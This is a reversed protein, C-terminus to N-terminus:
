DKKPMPRISNMPQGTTYELGCSGRDIALSNLGWHLQEAADSPLGVRQRPQPLTHGTASEPASMALSLSDLASAFDAEEESVELASAINSPRTKLKMGSQYIKRDYNWRAEIQRHEEYWSEYQEKTMQEMPPYMANHEAERANLIKTSENDICEQCYFATSTANGFPELCNSGCDDVYDTRIRHSCTLQHYLRGRCSNLRKARDAHSGTDLARVPVSPQLNPLPNGQQPPGAAWGFRCAQVMQAHSMTDDSPTSVVRARFVDNSFDM